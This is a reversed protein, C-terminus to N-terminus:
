TAVKVKLHKKAEEYGAAFAKLNLDVTKAKVTTTIAKEAAEKSIVGTLGVLYGFMVVNAVIRRGLKEALRTAPIGIVRLGEAAEELDVLDEDVVLLGLDKFHVDRSLLRHTGIVIDCTGEKLAALIPTQAKKSVFRSLVEVRLPGRGLVLIDEDVNERESRFEGVRSLGLVDVWLRRLGAKERAGVAIQQIGLVRFPRATDEQITSGNSM